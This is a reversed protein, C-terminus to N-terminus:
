IDSTASESMKGDGGTFKGGRHKSQPAEAGCDLSNRLAGFDTPQALVSAVDGQIAVIHLFRCLLQNGGFESFERVGEGGASRSDNM